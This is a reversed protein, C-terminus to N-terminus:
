FGLSSVFVLLYFYFTVCLLVCKGWVKFLWAGSLRLIENYKASLHVWVYMM